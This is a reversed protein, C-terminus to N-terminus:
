CAGVIDTGGGVATTGLPGETRSKLGGGLGAAGGGLCDICGTTEPGGGVGICDM